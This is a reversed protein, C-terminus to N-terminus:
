ENVPPYIIIFKGNSTRLIKGNLSKLVEPKSSLAGSQTFIIESYGAVNTGQITVTATRPVGTNAGAILYAFASDHGTVYNQLFEYAGIDPATGSYVFTVFHTSDNTSWFLQTAVTLWEQDSTAIWTTDSCLDFKENATIEPVSIVSRDVALVQAQIPVTMLIVILILYLKKIAQIMATDTM